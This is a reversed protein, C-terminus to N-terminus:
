SLQPIVTLSPYIKARMIQQIADLTSGTASYCTTCSGSYAIRVEDGEVELVEVGGADLAVYPQIDQAILQAIVTKKELPQLQEWGPYQGTEALMEQMADPTVLKEELPIDMCQNVAGEIAELVLNVLPLEAGLQKEILSATIRRAGEYSKRVLLLCAADGAAILEPPGFAQFKADAIIGDSEDVLLYLAFKHEQVSAGSKVLRLGEHATLTGASTPELIHFLMKRNM